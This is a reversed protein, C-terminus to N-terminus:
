YSRGILYDKILSPIQSSSDVREKFRPGRCEMNLANRSLERLTLPGSDFTHWLKRIFKRQDAKQACKKLWKRDTRPLSAPIDQVPQLLNHINIHFNEEGDEDEEEDETTEEVENTINAIQKVCLRENELNPDADFQSKSSGYGLSILRWVM